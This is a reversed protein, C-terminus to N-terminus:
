GALGTLLSEQLQDGSLVVLEMVLSKRHNIAFLSQTVKNIGFDQFKYTQNLM